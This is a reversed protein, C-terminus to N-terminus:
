SLVPPNVCMYEAVIYSGNWVLGILIGSFLTAHIPFYSVYQLQGMLRAAACPSSSLSSSSVTYSSNGRDRDRTNGSNSYQKADRAANVMVPVAMGAVKALLSISLLSTGPAVVGAPPIPIWPAPSLVQWLASLWNHAAEVWPLIEPASSLPTHCLVPDTLFSTVVVLLSQSLLSHWFPMPNLLAGFCIISFRSSFLILGLPGLASSYGWKRSLDNEANLLKSLLVTASPMAASILRYVWVLSPYKVSYPHPCYFAAALIITHLAVCILQLIHEQHTM